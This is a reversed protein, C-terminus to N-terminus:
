LASMHYPPLPSLDQSSTIELQQRQQIHSPPTSLSPFCLQLPLYLNTQKKYMKESKYLRRNTHPKVKFSEERSVEKEKQLAAPESDAMSTAAFRSYFGLSMTEDQSERGQVKAKGQTNWLMM